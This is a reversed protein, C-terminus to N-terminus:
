APAACVAMGYICSLPSGKPSGYAWQRQPFTTLHAAAKWKEMVITAAGSAGLFSEDLLFISQGQRKQSPRRCSPIHPADPGIEIGFPRRVVVRPKRWVDTKIKENEQTPKNKTTFLSVSSGKQPGKLVIRSCSLLAAFFRSQRNGPMTGAPFNGLPGASGSAEPGGEWLDAERRGAARRQATGPPQERCLEVANREREASREVGGM